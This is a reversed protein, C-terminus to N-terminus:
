LVFCSAEHKTERCGCNLGWDEPLHGLYPCSVQALPKHYGGTIFKLGAPPCIM